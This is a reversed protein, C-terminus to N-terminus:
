NCIRNDGAATVAPDCLRAQGGPSVQVALCRITGGADVCAQSALSFKVTIPLPLTSTSLSNFVVRSAQAPATVVISTDTVGSTNAGERSSKAEVLNWTASNLPQYRVVWNRGTAVPNISNEIGAVIDEDTLDIEVTQNRLVAESRAKQVGALYSEAATQVRVNAFYGKFSPIAFAMLIGVIVIGVLLEILSFGRLTPRNLM